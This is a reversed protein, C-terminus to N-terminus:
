TTLVYKGNEKRVVNRYEMIKITEPISIPPTINYWEQFRIIIDQLFLSGEEKLIKKVLNVMDEVYNWPYM